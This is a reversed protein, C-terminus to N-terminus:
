YELLKLMVILTKSINLSIFKLIKKKPISIKLCVERMMKIETNVSTNPLKAQLNYNSILPMVYLLINIINLIQIDYNPTVIMNPDSNQHMPLSEVIPMSKKSLADSLGGHTSPNLFNNGFNLIPNNQQINQPQINQTQFLPISSNSSVVTSQTRLLMQFILHQCQNLNFPVNGM